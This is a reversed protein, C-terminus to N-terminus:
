ALTENKTEQWVTNGLLWYLIINHDSYLHNYVSEFGNNYRLNSVRSLM